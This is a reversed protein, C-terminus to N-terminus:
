SPSPYLVLSTGKGKCTLGNCEDLSQQKCGHNIVSMVLDICKFHHTFANVSIHNSFASTLVSELLIIKLQSYTMYSITKKDFRTPWLSAAFDIITKGAPMLPTIHCVSCLTPLCKKWTSLPWWAHWAHCEAMLGKDYKTTACLVSFRNESMVDHIQKSEPVIVPHSHHCYGLSEAQQSHARVTKYGDVWLNTNFLNTTCAIWQYM